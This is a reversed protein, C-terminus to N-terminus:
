AIDPPPAVKPPVEKGDLTARTYQRIAYMKKLLPNNTDNMYQVLSAEDDYEPMLKEANHAILELAARYREEKSKGANMRRKLEIHMLRAQRQQPTDQSIDDGNQPVQGELMIRMAELLVRMDDM